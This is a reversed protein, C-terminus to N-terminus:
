QPVGRSPAPRRYVLRGALYLELVRSRLDLPPGSLVAFDADAGPLLRGRREGLGLAGAGGATLAELAREPALGARVALAAQFRVDGAVLPAESCFAFVVGERSALAAPLRLARPPSDLGYPGLVFTRGALDLGALDRPELTPALHYTWRLGYAEALALAARLDRGESVYVVGALEGRAFRAFPDQGGEAAQAAELADRLLALAGPRSTPPRDARLASAGLALKALAGDAPSRPDTRVVLGEGAFLNTHGPAVLCTGVGAARAAAFDPHQRDLYWGVSLDRQLPAAPEDRAGRLGLATSADVFAPVVWAQERRVTRAPAPHVRGQGAAVIRGARVVLHGSELPPADARLILHGAELAWPADDEARAAVAGVLLGGLVLPVWRFFGFRM